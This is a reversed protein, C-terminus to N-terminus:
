SLHHPALKRSHDPPIPRQSSGNAALAARAPLRGYGVNSCAAINVGKFSPISEGTQEGRLIAASTEMPTPILNAFMLLGVHMSRGHGHVQGLTNE